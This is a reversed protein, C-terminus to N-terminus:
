SQEPHKAKFFPRKGRCFKLMEVSNLLARGTRVFSKWEVFLTEKLKYGAFMISIFYVQAADDQLLFIWQVDLWISM